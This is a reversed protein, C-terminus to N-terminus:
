QIIQIGNNNFAVNIESNVFIFVSHPHDTTLNSDITLGWNQQSFDAGSGGLKDYSMGLGWVQGGDPVRVSSMNNTTTPDSSMDRNTNIPGVSLSMNKNFPSVASVYDAILVPDVVLAPSDRTNNNLEYHKPFLAGGKTWVVKSINAVSGDKNTPYLTQYSDYVRNNLMISPLFSSFVSRVKSLGLNFSINAQQSNITDYYSTISQYTFVGSQGMSSLEAPTYDTVEVLLKLDSFEYWADSLTSADGLTSSIMQSDSALALSIELGGLQSDSLPIDDTGNFLGCPLPITFDNEVGSYVVSSNFAQHNSLALTTTNMHTDMDELSTALPLYNNLFHAYHRVNEITQQYKISRTTLSEFAGYVGLRENCAMPASGPAPPTADDKYFRIKGCVRVSSPRLTANMAPVQFILNAIGKRFSMKGDSPSNNVSIELYRSSM